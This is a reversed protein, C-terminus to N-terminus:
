KREWVGDVVIVFGLGVRNEEGFDYLLAKYGTASRRRRRRRGEM